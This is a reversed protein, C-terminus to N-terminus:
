RENYVNRLLNDGALGQVVTNAAKAPGAAVRPVSGAAYLGRGVLNPSEFPLLALARPDLLSALGTLVPNRGALGRPLGSSAEMGALRSKLGKAGYEELKDIMKLRNGFNTNVNNRMGSMLKRIGTDFSAKDGLSLAREMEEVGEEGVAYDRMIKEYIPAQEIIQEKITRELDGLYARDVRANPATPSINEKMIRIKKKLADLGTPSFFKEPNATGLQYWQDLANLVKTDLGATRESLAVGEYHGYEQADQWGKLVKNFDIPEHDMGMVKMAARYNNGLEKRMKGLSKVSMKVTEEAPLRGALSDIYETERVRGAKIAQRLSTPSVGTFPSLVHSTAAAPVEGVARAVKAVGPIKALATEGASLFVSADAAVGVPDDKLAKYFGQLSGYRETYHQRVKNLVDAGKAGEAAQAERVPSPKGTIGEQRSIAGAMEPDGIAAQSALSRGLTGIGGATEKATQVINEDRFPEVAKKLSPVFNKIAGSVANGFTLPPEPKVEGSYPVFKKAPATPELADVDGQYAAFGKPPDAM